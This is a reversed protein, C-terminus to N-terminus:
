IYETRHVHSESHNLFIKKLNELLDDTHLQIQGIFRFDIVNQKHRNMFFLM